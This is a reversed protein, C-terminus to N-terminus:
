EAVIITDDCTLLQPCFFINHLYATSICNFGIPKTEDISSPHFDADARNYAGTVVWGDLTNDKSGGNGIFSRDDWANVLLLTTSSNFAPPGFPDHNRELRLWRGDSTLMSTSMTPFLPNMIHIAIKPTNAKQWAFIRLGMEIFKRNYLSRVAKRESDNLIQLWAGMGIGTMRLTVDGRTAMVHRTATEVLTMMTDTLTEYRGLWGDTGPLVYLADTSNVSELNVGWVHAYYVSLFADGPLMRGVSFPKMDVVAQGLILYRMPHSPRSPPPDCNRSDYGLVQKMTVENIDDYQPNIIHIPHRNILHLRVDRVCAHRPVVLRMTQALKERLEPTELVHECLNFAGPALFQYKYMSLIHRLYQGHKNTVLHTWRDAFKVITDM